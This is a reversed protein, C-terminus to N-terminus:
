PCSLNSTAPMYGSTGFNAKLRFLDALNISEDHTFDACCNYGTDGKNKGFAAKLAFLDALNISGDCTADGNDQGACQSTNDWCTGATPDTTVHITRPGSLNNGESAEEIRDNTDVRVYMQYDGAAPYSHTLTIYNYSGPNLSMVTKYEEGWHGVAPPSPENAYWDVYFWDEVPYTGANYITINIDFTEGPGPSVPDTAWGWIMLDVLTYEYAGMDCTATGDDDGDQPRSVGLIDTSPAGTNSGADICPSSYQLRLDSSSVFQPNLNMSGGYGGRVDCNYVNAGGGSGFGFEDTSDDWLICNKFTPDCTNTYVGDGNLVAGNSSFTCCNVYPYAMHYGMAGGNGASGNNLFVCNEITGETYYGYSYDGCIAGGGWSVEGTAHNNEFECRQITPDSGAYFIAGGNYGHNNYFRCDRIRPNSRLDYIAGGPVWTGSAFQAQNYTFYCNDIIPRTVLGFACEYNPVEDLYIGAGAERKGNRITFGDIECFCTVYFCRKNYLGDVITENNEFDRQSVSTETGDFGGYIAVPKNCLIETAPYYVGEKVWIQTPPALCVNWTGTAKTIAEQITKLATGWSTGAGSAAVDGDVYYVIGPAATAVLLLTLIACLITKNSNSTCM